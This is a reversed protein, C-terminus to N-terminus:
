IYKHRLNTRTLMGLVAKRLIETPKRELMDSAKREKLGGPYGTHWRYYKDGWKKGSFQVKESNIVVVYDGCDGNPRYTPKHKGKLLSAITTALRGVTQDSADILHWTRQVGM